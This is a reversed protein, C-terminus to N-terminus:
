LEPFLTLQFIFSASVEAYYEGLIIDHKRNQNYNHLDDEDLGLQKPNNFLNIFFDNNLM